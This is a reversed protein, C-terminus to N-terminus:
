TPIITTPSHHGHYSKNGMAHPMITLHGGAATLYLSQGTGCPSATTRCLGSTDGGPFLSQPSVCLTVRGRDEGREEVQACISQYYARGLAGIFLCVEGGGARSLIGGDGHDPTQRM